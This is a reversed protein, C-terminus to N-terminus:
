RTLYPEILQKVPVRARLRACLLYLGALKRHLFLLDAPPLRWVRQGFRLGTVKAQMRAALGSEAFGYEGTHRAPETADMLLSVITERYAPPDDEALYGIEIASQELMSTNGAIGAHLLRTLLRQTFPSYTRLAGFDLLGIRGGSTEYRYNSLNPDTQVVGWEFVERLSLDLLATAVRNRTESRAADLAELPDGSVYSMVLVEATNWEGITEPVVFRNDGQVLVGYDHLRRAEMTYDAEEHLQRKAETLFTKVEEPNPVARVLSLLKAVNDVDSDISRRIGPYQIKVALRRGDQTMADHVQGISAAAIPQFNFRSFRRKWDNGWARDLQAAVASLPMRHADERLRALAGSFEGPWLDGTDMSLLQGVKMAAGRLESLREAVQSANRPSALLEGATPMDGSAMRRIGEAAMGAAIGGAMRGLKLLRSGRSAPLDSIRAM